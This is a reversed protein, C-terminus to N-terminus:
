KQSFHGQYKSLSHLSDISQRPYNPWNLEELGHAHYIKGGTDGGTGKMLTKCTCWSYMDKVEKSLNIGLYKNKQHM